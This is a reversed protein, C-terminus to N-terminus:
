GAWDEATECAARQPDFCQLLVEDRLRCTGGEEECGDFTYTCGGGAAVFVKYSPNATPTEFITAVVPLRQPAGPLLLSCFFPSAEVADRCADPLLERLCTLMSQAFSAISTQDPPPRRSGDSPWGSPGLRPRDGASSWVPAPRGGAARRDDPGDLREAIQWSDSGRRTLPGCAAAASPFLLSSSSSLAALSGDPNQTEDAPRAISQQLANEAAASSPAAHRAAAGPPLKSGVSFLHLTRSASVAVLLKSSPSFRLSCLPPAAAAPPGAPRRFTALLCPPRLSWVRVM